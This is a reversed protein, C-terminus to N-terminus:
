ELGEQSCSGTLLSVFLFVVGFSINLWIVVSGCVVPQQSRDAQSSMAGAWNFHCVHLADVDRHMNILESFQKM